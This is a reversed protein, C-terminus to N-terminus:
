MECSNLKKVSFYMPFCALAAMCAYLPMIEEHLINKIDHKNMIVTDTATAASFTKEPAQFYDSRTM